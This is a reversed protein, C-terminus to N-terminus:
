PVTHSTASGPTTCTARRYGKPTADGIRVTQSKVGYQRLRNALGREDLPKGRSTPGPPKTSPTCSAGPHNQVCARRRWRRLRRAPRDAPSRRPQSAGGPVGGCACCGGCSRPGALRRRGRRRRRAAAEWVDADRDHIEAPLERGSPKPRSAGLGRDLSASATGDELHIRRRYPEVSSAPMAGGCGSSSALALPDHRAALRARGARRRLLGPDGRDRGDQRAGRVPRRRCRAPPRRQAPGRIEENDKAKPGFVTDIEDFLITPRGEECGVKRFLYAPTVNVAEVPNPVLLETIELARTKGIAPEPSLFALRPTSEWGDMLHTHLIWLAHAVQAHESPYAVFRGLFDHVATMTQKGYELRPVALYLSSKEADNGNVRHKTDTWGSAQAIHFLTGIKIRTAESPVGHRARTAPMTSTRASRGNIGCHGGARAWTIRSRWESRSGYTETMRTSPTSHTVFGPMMMVTM